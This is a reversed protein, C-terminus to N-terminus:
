DPDFQEVPLGQRLGPLLAPLLVLGERLEPAVVLREPLRVRVLRVRDATEAGRQQRGPRNNTVDWVAPQDNYTGPTTTVEIWSSWTGTGLAFRRWARAAGTGYECYTQFSCATTGSSSRVHVLQGTKTSPAGTTSAGCPYVRMGNPWTSPAGSIDSRTNEAWVTAANLSAKKKGYSDSADEIVIIDGGAPTAASMANIEGAVNDHIATADAGDPVNNAHVQPSGGLDDEWERLTADSIKANLNALTDSSHASGGLAHAAPTAAPLSGITIKKKANSAAADEILLLDSTTPTGKSAVANIEGAVNDHIATADAGDPVNSAHVQPSGGLDDEWERLTADSIKANLNALTDQNHESGGLDHAAPTAAPLSGITVKKKANSAAADEILLLDSTTPTGKSAVANIEGSVNDHIADGDLGDPSVYEHEQNTNNWALVKGDAIAATEVDIAQTIATGPNKEIHTATSWVPFPLDVSHKTRAVLRWDYHNPLAGFRAVPDAGWTIEGDSAAVVAFDTWNKEWFSSHYQLVVNAIHDPLSTSWTVREYWTEGGPSVPISGHKWIYLADPEGALNYTKVFYPDVKRGSMRKGSLEEMAETHFLCRWHNKGMWKTIPYFPSGGADYGYTGFQIYETADKDAKVWCWAIRQYRPSIFERENGRADASGSSIDITDATTGSEPDTADNNTATCGTLQWNGNVDKTQDYDGTFSTFIVEYAVGSIGSVDDWEEEEQSSAAFGRVNNTPSWVVGLIDRWWGTNQIASREYCGVMAPLLYPYEKGLVEWRAGTYGQPVRVLELRTAEERRRRIEYERVTTGANAHETWEWRQHMRLDPLVPYSKNGVDGFPCLRFRRIGWKPKSAGPDASNKFQFRFGHYDDDTLEVVFVPRQYLVYTNSDPSIHWTKEDVQNSWNVDPGSSYVFEVSATESSNAQWRIWFTVIAIKSGAIAVAMDGDLANRYSKGSTQQGTLELETEEDTADWSKVLNGDEVVWGTWNDPEANGSANVIMSHDNWPGRIGFVESISTPKDPIVPAISVPTDDSATAESYANPDFERLHLRYLGADPEWVIPDIARVPQRTLIDDDFFLIDGPEIPAGIGQVTGNWFFVELQQIGKFTESWRRAMGANACGQLGFEIRKDGTVDGIQPYQSGSMEDEVTYRVIVEDPIEYVPTENGAPPALWHEKKIYVNSTTRVRVGDQTVASEVTFNDDDIITQVERLDTGVYVLDGVALETTAEGSTTDETITTIGSASWSGTIAPPLGEHWVKIKGDVSYYRHALGHRLVEALAEDPDRTSLPGQFHCRATSGQVEEDCYDAWRWWSGGEAIDIDSPPLGKWISNTLIDFAV